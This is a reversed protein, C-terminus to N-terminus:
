NDTRISHEFTTWRLGPGSDLRPSGDRKIACTKLETM